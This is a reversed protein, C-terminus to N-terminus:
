KATTAAIAPRSSPLIEVGGRPFPRLLQLGPYVQEVKLLAHRAKRGFEKMDHYEAGFQEHLWRWAVFRSAGNKSAIFATYTAWAYLDLALPSRKLSNLARMDLPIPHTIIANYFKEGLEIWSGWLTGQDPQRSSWWLEGEPAIEMRLWAHRTQQADSQSLSFSIRSAFLKTMQDRLRRADSRNAGVSGNDPNLGLQSMFSHLSTGLELRRKGTRLAEATIWFLLLRPISGYPYGVLKGSHEGQQITLSLNGNTRTWLPIDGPNRHPLTAQVFLKSLFALEAAQPNARIEVSAEVLKLTARSLAPLSNAPPPKSGLARRIPGSPLALAGQKEDDQDAM